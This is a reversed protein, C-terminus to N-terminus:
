LLCVGSCGCYDCRRLCNCPEEYIIIHPYLCGHFHSGAFCAVKRCRGVTRKASSTYLLCLIFQMTYVIRDYCVNVVSLGNGQITTPITKGYEFFQVGPMNGVAETQTIDTIETGALTKGSGTAYSVYDQPWSPTGSINPKETWYIISYSVESAKWVAHLRLTDTVPTTFDYEPGSIVTSWHQFTYGERTPNTEPKAVAEGDKVLM